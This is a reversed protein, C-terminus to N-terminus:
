AARPTEHYRSLLDHTEWRDAEDALRNWAHAMALWRAKADAQKTTEAALLCAAAKTRYEESHM